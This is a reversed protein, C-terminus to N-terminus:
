NKLFEHAPVIRIIKGNKEFMDSQNLTIIQGENLDLNLMAEMLGNLERDFNEDNVSLCVQIAVIVTNKEMAIFDCEGKDHYYFIQSFKRRLQLFVLNEFRRGMNDSTSVSNETYVGMDM